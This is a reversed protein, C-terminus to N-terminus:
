IGVQMPLMHFATLWFKNWLNTETPPLVYVLCLDM